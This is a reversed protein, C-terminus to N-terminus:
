NKKCYFILVNKLKFLDIREINIYDIKYNNLAMNIKEPSFSQILEKLINLKFTYSIDEIESLIDAINYKKLFQYYESRM